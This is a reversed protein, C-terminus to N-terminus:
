AYVGRPVATRTPLAPIAASSALQYGAPAAMMPTLTQAPFAVPGQMPVAGVSAYRVQPQKALTPTPGKGDYAVEQVGGESVALHGVYRKGQSKKQLEQLVPAHMPIPSDDVGSLLKELFLVREELENPIPQSLREVEAELFDILEQKQELLAIAEPGAVAPAESPGDALAPLAPSDMIPRAQYSDRMMSM